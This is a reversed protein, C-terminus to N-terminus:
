QLHMTHDNLLGFIRDFHKGEEAMCQKIVNNLNIEHLPEDDSVPVDSTADDKKRCM